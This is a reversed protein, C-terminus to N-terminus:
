TQAAAMHITRQPFPIEINESRYRAHLAKIFEHKLLYNDTFHKARLIVTFNISSDGFTHYRIFPEFSTVGGQVESLVKKAVEITVREVKVLDSGYSVGAQVLVATEKEPLDFNTFQSAALKSNPIVVINNSLLKVQTSRWGIKVVHGQTDPDLQVFDGPRMPRDILIYLGSFFNSLTDQLALAVAVSGVGLSALLPTISIGLTDLASLAFLTFLLIRLGTAILLRVNASFGQFLANWRVFTTILRELTWTGALILGIKTISLVLPHSRVQGPAWQLAFGFSAILILLRVPASLDSVLHDDWEGPTAAARKILRKWFVRKVFMLLLISLIAVVTVLVWQWGGPYSGSFFEKLQDINM